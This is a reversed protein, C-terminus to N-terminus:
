KVTGFLKDFGGPQYLKDFYGPTDMGCMGWVGHLVAYIGVLMLALMGIMLVGTFLGDMEGKGLIHLIPSIAMSALSIVVSGGLVFTVMKLM